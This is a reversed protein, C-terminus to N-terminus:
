SLTNSLLTFGTKMRRDPPREVALHVPGDAVASVSL